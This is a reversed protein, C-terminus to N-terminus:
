HGRANNEAIAGLLERTETEFGELAEQSSAGASELARSEGRM